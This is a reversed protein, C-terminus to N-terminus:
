RCAALDVIAWREGPLTERAGAELRVVRPDGGFLGAAQETPPRIPRVTVDACNACGNALTSGELTICHSDAIAYSPLLATVILIFISM